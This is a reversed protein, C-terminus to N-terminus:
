VLFAGRNLVAHPDWRAKLRRMMELSDPIYGWADFGDFRTSLNESEQPAALLIAYGGMRLATQRLTPLDIEGLTYLLGSSLDAFFSAPEIVAETGILLAPLNKPAVGLRALPQRIDLLGPRPAGSQIWSAWTESGALSEELRLNSAGSADLWRRAEALETDVDERTGEVTYILFYSEKGLESLGKCVALTSANVCMRLLRTGIDLGMALNDFAALLSARARPLPALKLTMETVLGLTGFAGAFLRPLDYGAVNKVVPRGAHIIRGDPLVARVELLLDRLGGYRMRLPANFNTSLIGGLTSRSWPSILPTWMGFAALEAQLDTLPTGAGVTVYLDEVACHTIGKLTATSLTWDAAPLWNSKTGGGRLNVTKQERAAQRLIDATEVASRPELGGPADNGMDGEPFIKGPNMMGAPDFVQKVDWMASLEAANFMLPMFRRKELGVGHEGTISGQQDVCIQMIHQGAAFIRGMLVPDAPDDILIFPHLNGDGAHFVYAVRLEQGACVVSIANLTEALKSRPVTGDLLYYSPSLRAMAGAASKRGYWIRDREEASQAVRLDWAKNAQLIAIVEEAQPDLSEAYGDVEVILAAGAQIPLGAHAYDEIIRMMKQDMMELTAPVLGGAIVASVARGADEVTDFAAMMTKVAPPYRLLRAFVKTILGLTGESGTMLAIFDYEPYDLAQGGLLLTRGDALVVELGTLYNTTVGYKFCHPGGANEAINGGITASRGSAPDPPYYLGQRRVYEDLHLNVVGPEVVVRRGAQDFELIRKMRSFEVILGGREAVAGGSLGTGAGRGVLPIGQQAAWRVILAVEETSQPFVVGDPCARDLAADVEYTLMEVPHTLLQGPKLQAALSLLQASFSSSKIMQTVM